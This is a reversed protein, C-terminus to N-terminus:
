SSKPEGTDTNDDSEPEAFRYGFGPVTEIQQGARHLKSRLKCVASDVVRADLQESGWVEALLTDRDLIQNRSHVFARLLWFERKTLAVRKGDVAVFVDEFRAEIHAGKFHDDIAYAFHEGRRRRLLANLRAALETLDLPKVVYDDAGLDLAAIAGPSSRDGILILPLHRTRNRSRIARCFEAWPVDRLGTDLVLADPAATRVVRLAVAGASVVSVALNGHTELHTRMSRALSPDHEVVLVHKNEM